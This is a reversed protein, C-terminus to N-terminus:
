LGGDWKTLPQQYGSNILKNSENVSTAILRVYPDSLVNSTTLDKADVTLTVTRNSPSITIPSNYTWGMIPNYGYSEKNYLTLAIDKFQYTNTSTGLLQFIIKGSYSLKNSSQELQLSISYSTPSTKFEIEVAEGLVAFLGSSAIQQIPAASAILFAIWTDGNAVPIQTRQIVLDNLLGKSPSLGTSVYLVANDVGKKKMAVGLYCDKLYVSNGNYPGVRINAKNLAGSSIMADTLSLKFNSGSLFVTQALLTPIFKQAKHNYGAFDTLRCYSPTTSGWEQPTLLASNQQTQFVYGWQVEERESDGIEGIANYLIPRYLSWINVNKSLCVNIVNYEAEEILDAVEKLGIPDTASVVGNSVSM